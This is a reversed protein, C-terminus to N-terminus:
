NPLNTEMGQSGRRESVALDLAALLEDINEAEVSGEAKLRRAHTLLDAWFALTERYVLHGRHRRASAVAASLNDRLSGVLEMPLDAIETSHANVM